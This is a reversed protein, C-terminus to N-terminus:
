APAGTRVGPVTASTGRPTAAQSCPACPVTESSHVRASQAEPLPPPRDSDGVGVGAAPFCGPPRCARSGRRCYSRRVWFPVPRVARTWPRRTTQPRGRCRPVSHGAWGPPTVPVGLARAGRRCVPAPPELFFDRRLVRPPGGWRPGPPGEAGARTGNNAIFGAMDVSKGDVSLNRMCGVFQRNHVPFDEPLNPVGGLLLPGTLDLSRRICLRSMGTAALCVQWRSRGYGFPSAPLRRPLVCM